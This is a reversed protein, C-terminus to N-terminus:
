RGRNVAAFGRAAEERAFKLELRTGDGTMRARLGAVYDEDGIFQMALLPARLLAPGLFPLLVFRAAVEFVFGAILGAMLGAAGGLILSPWQGGTSQEDLGAGAALVLVLAFVALGVVLGGLVFPVCGALFVTKTTRACRECHPVGLTVSVQEQRQGRPVLKQLLMRSETVPAAGCGVCERPFAPPRPDRPSLPYQLSTSM